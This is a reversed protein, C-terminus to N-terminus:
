MISDSAQSEEAPPAGESVEAGGGGGFKTWFCYFNAYCYIKGM